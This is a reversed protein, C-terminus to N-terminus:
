QVFDARTILEADVNRLLALEDNALSILTNKGSQAIALDQFSIGSARLKDQGDKFDRILSRGRGTSIVFTDKGKGGILTNRGKGGDLVDKGSGGKLRDNGGGGLLEDNGKGGNLIDNGGGGNLIDAGNGGNLKDKGSGGSLSDNGNGGFLRDRGGGGTLQDDGDLGFITDNGGLGNIEDNRSDGSLTDASSSAIPATVTITFTDQITEGLLNTAQVVVESIGPTLYDLVLQGNSIVPSVVAPNSNSLVGFTLEDRQEITISRYRVFNDTTFTAPVNNVDVNLPINALFNQRNSSLGPFETIADIPAMDAESLVEGFVTFGENQSDLNASNDGLNFFWENTASDPNGGLKAMAITGRLNSRDGSFENVVPPDSPIDEFITRNAVLDLLASLTTTDGDAMRYGGGQVVFGDIARHIISNDYDGRNVYNQFNQVTLPAGAGAQDFLLVNTIGGGLATNYLEFRAVLGTTRPDDFANLLDVSADTANAAAVIDDLPTLSITM